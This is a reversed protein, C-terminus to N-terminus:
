IETFVFAKNSNFYLCHHCIEKGNSTCKKSFPGHRYSGSLDDIETGFAGRQLPWKSM